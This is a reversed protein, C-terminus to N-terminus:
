VMTSNLGLTLMDAQVETYGLQIMGYHFQSKSKLRSAIRPDIKIQIMGYHFQSRTINSMKTCLTIRIQIM